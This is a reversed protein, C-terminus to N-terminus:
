VVSNPDEPLSALNERSPSQKMGAPRKRQRYTYIGAGLGCLSFVVVCLIELPEM